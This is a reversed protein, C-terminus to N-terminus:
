IAIYLTIYGISPALVLKLFFHLM